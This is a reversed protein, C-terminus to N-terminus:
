SAPYRTSDSHQSQQQFTQWAAVVVSILQIKDAASLGGLDVRLRRAMAGVLM